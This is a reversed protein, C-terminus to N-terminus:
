KELHEKLLELAHAYGKLGEGTITAFCALRAYSVQRFDERTEVASIHVEVAPIAVAKLADLIAVSTHTYAAPNIVIGDVKGYAEQIKDVISGEHNSQFVEVEDFGQAAGAEQCIQVLRDYNDSGYIGPERIGLMNLNPGNIVLAKMTAEKATSFGGCLHRGGKHHNQNSLPHSPTSSPMPPTPPATAHTSSTTPWARYRPMRQEALKDIGDRATIPRGKHALEDLKRNLMVIQSNQHLLPYNEDRTVVGGGTSLVLGSRKSIDALAATEQERFAAEGCKIIFDACPMGLREELARDLDIHERGTLQAIQEGVRTKGSGPMGILAINQERRSLRETVDLIRERPTAKGTYREVAQAAQAVLMLLGGICPIGRREAELMLGTRAPNYVIDIVGELADLGELTCPADPCHPFMGAPTCNVLLSADSQQAINDYNVESTRGVSVVTAGLDGLVMSATTGAGGTAGLVLVKKGAVEVGLEEVLCQFGFYDTNDGRLRGDPLRTITNVNGMREALPSLEDLYEMVARKYPITVNTGEWEDGTMFTALDEPEREFRVYELGALEKYITPTYSHGLVRGLVGYPRTAATDPM